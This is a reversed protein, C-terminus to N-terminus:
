ASPEAAVARVHEVLAQYKLEPLEARSILWKHLDQDQERLLAVFLVRDSASLDAYGLELFRSLLHDLELMGRRCQWRLRRLQEQEDASSM